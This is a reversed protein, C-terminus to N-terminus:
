AYRDLIIFVNRILSIGWYQQYIGLLSQCLWAQVSDNEKGTFAPSWRWSPSSVPAAQAVSTASIASRCGPRHHQNGRVHLVGQAQVVFNTLEGVTQYEAPRSPFAERRCNREAGLDDGRAQRRQILEGGHLAAHQNHRHIGQHLADARVAIQVAM